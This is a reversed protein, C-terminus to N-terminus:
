ESLKNWVIYGEGDYAAVFVSRVTGAFAALQEPAIAKTSAIHASIEENMHGVAGISTPPRRWERIADGIKGKDRDVNFLAHYVENGNTVVRSKARQLWPAGAEFLYNELLCLSQPNELKDYIQEILQEDANATPFALYSTGGIKIHEPKTQTLPAHGWDFEMTETPSLPTPSLTMIRGAEFDVVELLGKSLSKGQGLQRRVYEVASARVNAATIYTMAETDIDWGPLHSIATWGLKHLGLSQWLSGSEAPRPASDGGSLCARYCSIVGEKGFIDNVTAAASLFHGEM